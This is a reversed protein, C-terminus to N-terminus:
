QGTEMDKPPDAAWIRAVAPIIVLNMLTIFEGGVVSSSVLTAMLRPLWQLDDTDQGGSSARACNSLRGLDQLTFYRAPAPRPTTAMAIVMPTTRPHYELWKAYEKTAMLRTLHVQLEDAIADNTSTPVARLERIRRSIVHKFSEWRQVRELLETGDADWTGIQMASALRGLLDRGRKLETHLHQAEAMNHRLAQALSDGKSIQPNDTDVSMDAGPNKIRLLEQHIAELAERLTLGDLSVALEHAIGELAGRGRAISDLVNPAPPKDNVALAGSSHLRDIEGDVDHDFTQMEGGARAHDSDEGDADAQLRFIAVSLPDHGLPAKTDVEVNLLTAVHDLLGRTANLEAELEAIRETKSM